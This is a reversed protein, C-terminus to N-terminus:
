APRRGCLAVPCLLVIIKRAVYDHRVTPFVSGFYAFAEVHAELFAQQTLRRLPWHFPAGSACSEGMDVEAEQGPEHHQPALPGGDLVLLRV